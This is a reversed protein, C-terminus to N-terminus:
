EEEQDESVNIDEDSLIALAPHLTVRMQGEELPELEVADDISITGKNAHQAFRSLFDRVEMIGELAQKIFVVTENPSKLLPVCASYMYRAKGVDLNLLCKGPKRKEFLADNARSLAIYALANVHPTDTSFSDGFRAAISLTTADFDLLLAETSKGSELAVDVFFFDNVKDIQEGVVVDSDRLASLVSDIYKEM